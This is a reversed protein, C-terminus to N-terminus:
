EVSKFYIGDYFPKAMEVAAAGPMHVTSRTSVGPANHWLKAPNAIMKVTHANGGDVSLKNSGFDAQKVTVINESGKFGGLHIAFANTSSNPSLGEAKIMIFGSNWDWYMGTGLSLDGDYVGSVNTASDVGMTYEMAVYDAAPVNDITFTSNGPCSACVLHHSNPEAWWNGSADKFKLNTVYFKFTQFTLTDGTKPHTMTQGIKWPLQNAGFVYEFQVNLSGTTAPQPTSDKEKKCGIALVAVLMM